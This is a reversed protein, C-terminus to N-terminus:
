SIVMNVWLPSVFKEKRTHFSISIEQHTGFIWFSPICQKIKWIMLLPFVYFHSPTFGTGRSQITRLGFFTSQLLYLNAPFSRWFAFHRCFVFEEWWSFIDGLSSLFVIWKYGNVHHRECKKGRVWGSLLVPINRWNFDNFCFYNIVNLAETFM